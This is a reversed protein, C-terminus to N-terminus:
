GDAAGSLVRRGYRRACGSAYVEEYPRGALYPRQDFLEELAGSLKRLKERRVM